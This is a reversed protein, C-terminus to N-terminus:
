VPDAQHKLMKFSSSLCVSKGRKKLRRIRQAERKKEAKSIPPVAEGPTVQVQREEDSNESADGDSFSGQDEQLQDSVHEERLPVDLQPSKEGQSANGNSTDGDLVKFEDHHTPELVNLQELTVGLLDVVSAPSGMNELYVRLFETKYPRIATGRARQLAGLAETRSSYAVRSKAHRMDGDKSTFWDSSANDFMRQIRTSDNDILWHIAEFQPYCCIILSYFNGSGHYDLSALGFGDIEGLHKVVGIVISTDGRRVTIEPEFWPPYISVLFSIPVNIETVNHLPMRLCDLLTEFDAPARDDFFQDLAAFFAHMTRQLVHSAQIGTLFELAFWSIMTRMRKIVDKKSIHDEPNYSVKM